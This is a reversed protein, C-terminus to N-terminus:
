EYNEGTGVTYAYAEAIKGASDTLRILCDTGAFSSLDATHTIMAGGAITALGFDGGTISYAKYVWEPVAGQVTITWGATLLNMIGEASASPSVETGYTLAQMNAGSINLVGARPNAVVSAALAVAFADVGTLTNGSLNISTTYELDGLSAPIVGILNNSNLAIGTVHGTTVTIGHWTGVVANNLWNTKTTWGGGASETYLEILINAEGQPIDAPTFGYEGFRSVPSRVHDRVHSRIM